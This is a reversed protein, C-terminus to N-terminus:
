TEQASQEGVERSMGMSTAITKIQTPLLDVINFM